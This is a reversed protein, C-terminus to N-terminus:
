EVKFTVDKLIKGSADRLEVKWDGKLSRLNKNTNTRWKAGAKLQMNTKLMEKGNYIWVFSVETDQLIGTAELFCYIKETSAAFKESVGVPEKNEMGTGVLLRAVTLGATEKVAAPAPQKEKEQGYASFLTGGLLITAFVAVLIITRSKRM